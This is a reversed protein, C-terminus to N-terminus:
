EYSNMLKKFEEYECLVFMDSDPGFGVGTGIEGTGEHSSEYYFVVSNLDITTKVKKTEVEKGLVDNDPYKIYIDFEKWNRM